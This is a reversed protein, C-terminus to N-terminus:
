TTLSSPSTPRRRAPSPRTATTGPGRLFHPAVNATSQAPLGLVQIESLGTATGQAQNITFRVWTVTKPAFTVPLAKGDTPLAGVAISTGDSFSLTGALVNESGNPRDYLNVQAVSVPASWDLQIWAGALQNASVWERAADNPAGDIVGDVAKLRGQNGASNESSATVTATIALNAGVDSMWFFEDKRAFSLYHTTVQSAYADIAQCKVDPISVRKGFAIDRSPQTFPVVTTKSAM